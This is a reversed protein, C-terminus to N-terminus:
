LEDQAFALVQRIHDAGWWLMVLRDLGLAVGSVPPCGEALADLFREDLPYAPLGLRQRTELDALSRARQLDADLLEGFGNALELRGAYLEFRDAVTPNEPMLRALSAMSAPWETLFVPKEEGLRPELKEVFVTFFAEEWTMERPALGAQRLLDAASADLDEVGAWRSFAAAMPLREWPPPPLPFPLEEREQVYAVLDEMERRLDESSAGVAYWELMTFEPNHRPGCEDGRFSRCIQYISGTGGALLRKMQFEPSPSLYGGGAPIAQLHTEVGPSPVQLPTEVELYGRADFFERVRRVIRHRFRLADLRTRGLRDPRHLRSWEAGPFPRCTAQIPGELFWAEGERRLMGWDGERMATSFGALQVTGAADQALAPSTRVLRAPRFKEKM